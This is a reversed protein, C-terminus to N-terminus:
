KSYKSAIEKYIIAKQLMWDYANNWNEKKLPDIKTTVLIRCAKDAEKWDIKADLMKAIEATSYLKQKDPRHAINYNNGPMKM